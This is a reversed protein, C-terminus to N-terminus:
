SKKKREIGILAAPSGLLLVSSGAKVRAKLPIDVDFGARSKIGVVVFGHNQLVQAKSLGSLPSGNPVKVEKMIMRESGSGPGFFGTLLEEEEEPKAVLRAVAAIVLGIASMILIATFLKGGTSLNAPVGVTAMVSIASLFADPFAMKEILLYGATGLALVAALASLVQKM